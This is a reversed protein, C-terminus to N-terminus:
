NKYKKLIVNEFWYDSFLHSKLNEACKCLCELDEGTIKSFYEKHKKNNSKWVQGSSKFYDKGDITCSWSRDQFTISVSDKLKCIPTHYKGVEIDELQQFLFRDKAKLEDIMDQKYQKLLEEKVNAKLRPIEAEQHALEELQEVLERGRKM